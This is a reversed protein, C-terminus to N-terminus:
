PIPPVLRSRAIRDLRRWGREAIDKIDTVPERNALDALLSAHEPPGFFGYLVAADRRAEVVMGHLHAEVENARLGRTLTADDIFFLADSPVTREQTLAGALLIAGDFHAMKLAAAYIAPRLAGEEHDWFSLLPELTSGKGIQGLAFIAARKLSPEATGVQELLAADAGRMHLRGLAVIAEFRIEEPESRDALLKFYTMHVPALRAMGLVRVARARLPAPATKDKALDDLPKAVYVMRPVLDEYDDSALELLIIRTVKAENPDHVFLTVKEKGFDTVPKLAPDSLAFADLPVLVSEHPIKGLALAAEKRFEPDPHTAFTSLWPVQDLAMLQGMARIVALQVRPDPHDELRVLCGKAKKMGLDGSARVYVPLWPDDEKAACLMRHTVEVAAQPVERLEDKKHEYDRLAALAREEDTPPPVRPAFDFHAVEQRGEVMVKLLATTM